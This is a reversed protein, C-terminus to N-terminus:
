DSGASLQLGRAGDIKARTLDAGTLQAGRLDANTLNAGTLKVGRLDTDTLDAGTLDASTLNANTDAGPTIKAQLSKDAISFKAGHVVCALYLWTAGVQM